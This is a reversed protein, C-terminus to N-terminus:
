GKILKFMTKAFGIIEKFNVGAFLAKVISVIGGLLDGWKIAKLSEFLKGAYYKIYGLTSYDGNHKCTAVHVDYAAKTAFKEGCGGDKYDGGTYPCVIYHGDSHNFLTMHETYEKESTFVNGCYPCTTSWSPDEGWAHAMASLSSLIFFVAFFVSLFKKM